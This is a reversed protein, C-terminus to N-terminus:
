LSAEQLEEAAAWLNQYTTPNKNNNNRKFNKYKGKSKKNVWQKDM